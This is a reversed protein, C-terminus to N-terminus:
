LYIELLFYMHLIVSANSAIAFYQFCDLQGYMLSNIYLIITYGCLAISHLQSFLHHRDRHVLM